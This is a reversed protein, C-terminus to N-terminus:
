TSGLKTYKSSATSAGSAAEIAQTNKDEHAKWDEWTYISADYGMLQMAYWVLSSRSYDSSYVVIPRDKSLRGFVLSLDRGDKIRDGKIINAPDLATSGGIRGKGFDAFPRADVIQAQGSKVYEYDAMVEPKIEPRYEIGPNKNESAELPLAAAKWDELNGDLLKVDKQGLYRFVLFAFEAEGSSESTGYVVVSDDRSVGAEGLVKALEESSKLNGEGDLFDKTPIHIANKIHSKAYGDDNSVDIVLESSSVNKVPKLIESNPFSESRAVTKPQSAATSTQASSSSIPQGGTDDSKLFEQAKAEWNGVASCACGADVVPALAILSLMLIGLVCFGRPAAINGCIKFQNKEHHMTNFETM